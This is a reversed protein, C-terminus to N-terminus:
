FVVYFRFCIYHTNLNSPYAPVLTCHREPPDNLATLRSKLTRHQLPGGM